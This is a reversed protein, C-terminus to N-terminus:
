MLEELNVKLYGSISSTGGASWNVFAIESIDFGLQNRKTWNSPPKPLQNPDLTTQILQAFNKSSCLLLLFLLTSRLLKM